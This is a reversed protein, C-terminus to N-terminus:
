GTRTKSQILSSATTFALAAKPPISPWGHNTATRAVVTGERVFAGKALIRSGRALVRVPSHSVTVNPELNHNYSPQFSNTLRDTDENELRDIRGHMQLSEEECVVFVSM